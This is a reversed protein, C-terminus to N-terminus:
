RSPFEQVEAPLVGRMPVKILGADREQATRQQENTHPVLDPRAVLCLPQCKPKNGAMTLAARGLRARQMPNLRRQFLSAGFEAAIPNRRPQLLLGLLV